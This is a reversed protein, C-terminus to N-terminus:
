EDSMVSLQRKALRNNPRTYRGLAGGGEALDTLAATSAGMVDAGRNAARQATRGAVGSQDGALENAMGYLSQLAPAQSGWVSSKSQTVSQALSRSYGYADSASNSSQSGGSMGM